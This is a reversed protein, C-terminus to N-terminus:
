FCASLWAGGSDASLDDISFRDLSAAPAGTDPKDVLLVRCRVVIKNSLVASRRDLRLVRASQPRDHMGERLSRKASLRGAAVL